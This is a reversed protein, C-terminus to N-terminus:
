TSFVISDVFANSICILKVLNCLVYVFILEAM